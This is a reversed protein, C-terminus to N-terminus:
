LHTAHNSYRARRAGHAQQSGRGGGGGGGGRRRKRMRRMRRVRRRVNYCYRTGERERVREDRHTEKSDREKTSMRCSSSPCPTTSQFRCRPCREYCDFHNSQHCELTTLPPYPRRQWQSTTLLPYEGHLTTLQFCRYTQVEDAVHHQHLTTM